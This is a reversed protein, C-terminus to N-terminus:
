RCQNTLWDRICKRGLREEMVKDIQEENKKIIIVDNYSALTQLMMNGSDTDLSLTM